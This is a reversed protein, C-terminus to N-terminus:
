KNLEILMKEAERKLEFDEELAYEIVLSYYYKALSVDKMENYIIDACLFCKIPEPEYGCLIFEQFLSLLDEFSDESLTGGNIRKLNDVLSELEYNEYIPVESLDQESLDLYTDTM